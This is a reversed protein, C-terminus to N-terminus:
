QFTVSTQSVLPRLIALVSLIVMKGRRLGKGFLVQNKCTQLVLRKFVSPFPSVARLSCNRRKEGVTNEVGKSDKRGNEELDVNDDAFEKLKSSNLIKDNPISHVYDSMCDACPRGYM